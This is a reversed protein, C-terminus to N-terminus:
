WDVEEMNTSDFTEGATENDSGVFVYTKNEYSYFANPVLEIGVVWEYPNEKTGKNDESKVYEKSICADGLWTCKFEYGVKDSAETTTKILSVLKNLVEQTALREAEQEQMVLQEETYPVFVEVEEYDDDEWAFKTVDDIPIASDKIHIQKEYYGKDM